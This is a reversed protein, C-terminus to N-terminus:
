FPPPHGPVEALAPEGGGSWGLDWWLFRLASFLYM